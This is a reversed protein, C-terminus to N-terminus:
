KLTFTVAWRRADPFEHFEADIAFPALMERMESETPFNKIVCFRGGDPLTREQYSDVKTNENLSGRKPLQDCFAVQAGSGLTGKLGELFAFRRDIPVHCFWDVAMAGDFHRDFLPLRYADAVRFTVNDSAALAKRAETLASENFDTAVISQAHEAIFQTWFGPGCAIELVTRGAMADRLFEIVASQKAVVAPDGYGMSLNYIPARRSYYEQMEAARADGALLGERVARDLEVRIREWLPGSGEAIRENRSIVQDATIGYERWSQGKNRLNMLCPMLRDMANAFRSEKTLGREFEDWLNHMDRAQEDPLLGFIRDAAAQERAAKSANGAVDYFFTDGADIEVLDHVILMRLVKHTDIPANAYEALVMTMLTLHWSHEASNEARSGSLLWTRRQIDKLRDAELLFQVQCELRDGM